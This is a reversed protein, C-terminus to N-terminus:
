RGAIRQDLLAFIDHCFIGRDERVPYTISMMTALLEEQQVQTYPKRNRSQVGPLDQNHAFVFEWRNAVPFLCVALIDFEGRRLSTTTLVSGDSFRVDRADSADCQFKAHISGDLQPRISNTQLSKSELRFGKGRYTFRLDGKATRDHDDDKVINSLREDSSLLKRLQFEAAYGVIMGRLSPNERILTTFETEDM